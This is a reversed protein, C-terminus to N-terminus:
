RQPYQTLGSLTGVYSLRCSPPGSETTMEKTVNSFVLAVAGGTKSHAAAPAAFCVVVSPATCLRDSNHTGRTGQTM